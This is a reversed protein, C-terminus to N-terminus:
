ADVRKVTPHQIIHQEYTVSHALIAMYLPYSTCVTLVRKVTRCAKGTGFTFWKRILIVRKAFVAL